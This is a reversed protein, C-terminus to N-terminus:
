DTAAAAAGRAKMGQRAEARDSDRAQAPAGARDLVQKLEMARAELAQAAVPAPFEALDRAVARGPEAAPDM